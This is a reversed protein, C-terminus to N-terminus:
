CLNRRGIQWKIEVATEDPIESILQLVQGASLGRM